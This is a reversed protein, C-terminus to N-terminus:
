ADRTDWEWKIPLKRRGLLYQKLPLPMRRVPMQRQQKKQKLRQPLLEQQVPLQHQRMPRVLKLAFPMM